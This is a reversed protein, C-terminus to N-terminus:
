SNRTESRALDSQQASRIARKAGIGLWLGVVATLVLGVLLFVTELRGGDPLRGEAIRGLHPAMAGLQAYFVSGPITGICTALFYQRRPIGTLGFAYNLVSFPSLPSLRLLVVSRAGFRALLRDVAFLRPDQLLWSEVPRRLLTQSLLFVAFSSSAIGPIGILTGRWAGFTFGAVFTFMASPVFLLAGVSYALVFCLAGLVGAHRLQTSAFGLWAGVPLIRGLALLVALSLAVGFARKWNRFRTASPPHATLNSQPTQNTPVVAHTLSM